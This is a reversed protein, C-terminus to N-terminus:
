LDKRRDQMQFGILKSDIDKILGIVKILEGMQAPMTFVKIAQTQQFEERPSLEQEEALDLLGCALLFAAQTTFGAVHCDAAIASEAVTTFDVHATIDQLGILQFPDEHRHHQYHCMLTGRCRDPHYFERRGYGYDLLLILGQRLCGGLASIWKPLLLNVESEYGDYLSCDATILNIKESLDACKEASVAWSFFKNKFTVRREKPECNEIRFCTVPLADMVENGVIVGNFEAPLEDLWQVRGSLHPLTAAVLQKQRARLDASIELIYYHRPLTNFRELELLLDCAMKGTGAGIELIDGDELLDLVQQCQRAICRSFLPSIEPATVFDGSKGLKQSGACYYGLGPAYLAMEMFRAFSITGGSGTIEDRICQFLEKSLALAENSPIPLTLM